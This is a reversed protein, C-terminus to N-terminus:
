QATYSPTRGSHVILNRTRYIRRIQWSVKTKHTEHLGKIGDSNSFTESLCFTRFRLLHFDKLSEYLENRLGSNSDIALLNIAKSYITIGRSNPVKYLIRKTIRRDWIFLDAVYREIIRRVYRTIVFPLIFNIIGNIKNGGVHSPVLTEIATWLNVLQNEIIDNSICIGHLDAARNFKQFSGKETLAFTSILKNLKKSAKNPKHDFGKQMAGKHPRVLCSSEDCCKRLVIAERSWSIQNKHHFLSLLDSLNDIKREASARAKHHDFAKIRKILVYEYFEADGEKILGLEDSLDSFADPVNDSIEINFAKVSDSVEKM